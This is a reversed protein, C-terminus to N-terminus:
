PIVYGTITSVRTTPFTLAKESNQLRRSDFGNKLRSKVKSGWNTMVM